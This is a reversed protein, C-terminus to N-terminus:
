RGILYWVHGILWFDTTLTETGRWTGRGVGGGLFFYGKASFLLIKRTERIKRSADWLLPGNAVDATRTHSRSQGKGVQTRTLCYESMLNRRTAIYCGASM